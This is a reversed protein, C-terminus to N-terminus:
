NSIKQYDSELGGSAASGLTLEVGNMAFAEGTTDNDFLIVVFYNEVPSNNKPIHFRGSSSLVGKVFKKYTSDSNFQYANGNGPKFVSDVAVFDGGQVRRLEWKGFLGPRVSEKKCALLCCAIVISFLIAKM